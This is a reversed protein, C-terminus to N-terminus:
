IRIVLGIYEESQVCFWLWLLQSFPAAVICLVCQLGIAHVCIPNIVHISQIAGTSDCPLKHASSPWNQVYCKSTQSPYQFHFISILKLNVIVNAHIRIRQKRPSICPTLMETEERISIRHKNLIIIYCNFTVCMLCLKCSVQAYKNKFM